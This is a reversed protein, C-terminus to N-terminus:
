AMARPLPRLTCSQAQASQSRITPVYHLALTREANRCHWDLYPGRYQRVLLGALYEWDLDVIDALIVKRLSRRSMFDRLTDQWERPLASCPFGTAVNGTLTFEEVSMLYRLIDTFVQAFAQIEGQDEYRFSANTFSLRKICNALDRRDKLLGYLDELDENCEEYSDSNSFGVEQFLHVRTLPYWSRDVLGVAALSSKDDKLQDVVLNEIEQPLAVAISFAGPLPTKFMATTSLLFALPVTSPRAPNTTTYGSITHNEGAM